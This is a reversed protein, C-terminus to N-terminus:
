SLAGIVAAGGVYALVANYNKGTADLIIGIVLPTSAGFLNVWFGYVGTTLGLLRPKAIEATLLWATNAMGAFFFTVLLLVMKVATGAGEILPITLMTIVGTLGVTVTLKRAQGPERGMRILRDSLWGSFLM